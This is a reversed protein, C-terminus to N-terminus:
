ENMFEFLLQENKQMLIELDDIHTSWEHESNGYLELALHSNPIVIWVIRRCGEGYRVITGEKGVDKKACGRYRIRTGIPYKHKM